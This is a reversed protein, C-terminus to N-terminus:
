GGALVLAAFGILLYVGVWPRVETGVPPVVVVLRSVLVAMTLALLATLWCALVTRARPRRGLGVLAVVWVVGFLISGLWLPPLGAGTDRGLLLQWVQAAPRVGDLAADPGTFLRGWSRVVSPWWPALVVLPVLLAIAVRGAKRPTRRLALAGVLGAGLALLLVSPEFAVLAVLVVGAGWGGRWAEPTRPRRLVLARAALALLPLAIAFVSLSLRGQNTGGLLVPLLAYTMAAWLRVRRGSITKRVVPYATVLSIPVVACLLVTVFWEPRGLFVTSGLAVLALWPPPSQGPAGAIPAWVTRWLEGVSSQAPLLAPATLSGVGLLDRAAVLCAVVSLVGVVVAPSLWAHRPREDAVAAYDDGTLEDLSAVELEGALSRYREAAAASLAEAGTRLGAWWRPRLTGVVRRSGPTPRIRVLRRRFAAIQGPHALFDGLALLEDRSRGPAKGFLYGLARVLCSWVLRLWVLPLRRRSAHGAVVLLGLYRDLRGPRRGALGSPRLGARGVQRHIFAARPTTVVSYGARHARWGFDVGDRFVPLAPDLGGLARWVSQRVLMGCTSVGLRRRPEDRQGQDIEGTDFLVERRGTGSISVGIESIRPAAHRPRPLLLKPGTIDITPEAVVHALLRELAHPEPVADDHLLWIWHSAAAALGTSPRGGHRRDQPPPRHAGSRRGSATKVRLQAAEDERLALQVAAGFGVSEDCSYVADLLGQDRARELLLRTSDSSHNDVAILRDPRHRLAALGALTEPLWRAADLAVLVATVRCGSIDVHADQADQADDRETWAWPDVEDATSAPLRDALPQRDGPAVPPQGELAEVDAVSEAM